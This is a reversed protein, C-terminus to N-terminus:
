LWFNLIFVTKFHGCTLSVIIKIKNKLKPIKEMALRLAYVVCPLAIIAYFEEKKDLLIKKLSKSLEVPYYASGSCSNLENTTTLIGFEFMRDSKEFIGVALINNVINKQLLSSLFSTAVGGSASKLRNKENKQYGSYCDLYYGTFKNYNTNPINKFLSKAIDDQNIYHDYFPCIELCISCNDKCSDNTYPILGGKQISWDMYLNNSPCVGACVGCGICYDNKVVSEIVNM